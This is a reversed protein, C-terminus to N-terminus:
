SKKPPRETSSSPIEGLKETMKVLVHHIAQLAERWDKREAYLLEEYHHYIEELFSAYAPGARENM